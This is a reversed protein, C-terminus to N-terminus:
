PRGCEPKNDQRARPEQRGAGLRSGGRRPTLFGRRLADFGFRNALFRNVPRDLDDARQGGLSSTVIEDCASPTTLRTSASRPSRTLAPLREDLEIALLQLVVEVLLLRRQGARERLYPAVSVSCRGGMSSVGSTLFAAASSACALCAKSRASSSCLRFSMGCCASSSASAVSCSSAPPRRSPAASRSSGRAGVDVRRVRRQLEGITLQAVRADARREVAVHLLPHDREALEHLACVGTMVRRGRRDASPSRGLNGFRMAGHTLTPWGTSAAADIRKRVLREGARHRADTGATFVCVRANAKSASPASRRPAASARCTRARAARSRARRAPASADGVGRM